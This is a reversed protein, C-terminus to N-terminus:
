YIYTYHGKEARFATKESGYPFIVNFGEEKMLNVLFEASETEEGGLEPHNFIYDSVNEFEKALKEEIKVALAKKEEKDMTVEM